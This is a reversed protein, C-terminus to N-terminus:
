CKMINKLSYEKEEIKHKLDQYEAVLQDFHTGRLKEYDDNKKRLVSLESKAETVFLDVNKKLETFADILHEDELYIRNIIQDNLLRSCAHVYILECFM